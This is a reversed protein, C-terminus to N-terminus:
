TARPSAAEPLPVVEEWRGSPWSRILADQVEVFRLAEEFSAEHPSM